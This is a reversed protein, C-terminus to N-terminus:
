GLDNNTAPKPKYLLENNFIPHVRGGGFQYGSAGDYGSPRNPVSVGGFRNPYTSPYAPAVPKYAAVNNYGRAQRPQNYQNYQSNQNNQNYPTYTQRIVPAPKFGSYPAPAKYGPCTSLLPTLSFEVM